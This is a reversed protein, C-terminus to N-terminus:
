RLVGKGAPEQEPVLEFSGGEKPQGFTGERIAAELAQQVSLGYVREPKKLGRGFYKESQEIALFDNAACTYTKKPNLPHKGVKIEIVRVERKRAGVREWRYELGAVQLIGHHKTAAAWANHRCIRELQRGTIRFRVVVNDFPIVALLDKRTIPGASLDARLGGSNIFGIDTGAASRLAAAVASGLPSHGHYQRRLDEANVGLVERELTDVLSRLEGEALLLEPAIQERPPYAPRLLEGRSTAVAGARIDLDIRGLARGSHGAHCIRVNGIIEPERLWTHSHGGVIVELSPFAEALARDVDVGCHTLAIQIDSEAELRPLLGALVQQPSVVETGERARRSALGELGGSILGVVGIRLGGRELVLYPRAPVASVRRDHTKATRTWNACLVPSNLRALLRELNDCGYDLDHNGLVWADYGIRDWLSCFPLGRVGDRAFSAAPHGSLLDGADLVLVHGPRERRIQRVLEACAVVGGVLGSDERRPFAHGHWDGTYLVTLTKTAHATGDLLPQKEGDARSSQPAALLWAFAVTLWVVRRLM